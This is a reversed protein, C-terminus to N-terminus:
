SVGSKFTRVCRITQLYCSCAYVSTHDLDRTWWPSHANHGDVLRSSLFALDPCTHLELIDRWGRPPKKTTSPGTTRHSQNGKRYRTEPTVAIMNIIRDLRQRAHPLGCCDRSWSEGECNAGDPPMDVPPRPTSVPRSYRHAGRVQAHCMRTCSADSM